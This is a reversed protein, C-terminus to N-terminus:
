LINEYNYILFVYENGLPYFSSQYVAKWKLLLTENFCQFM